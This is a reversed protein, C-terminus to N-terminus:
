VEGLGRVQLQPARQDGRLRLKPRRRREALLLEAAAGGLPAGAGDGIGAVTVDASDRM